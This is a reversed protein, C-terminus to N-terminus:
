NERTHSVALTRGVHPKKISFRIICKFCKLQLARTREKKRRNSPGISRRAQIYSILGLNPNTLGANLPTAGEAISLKLNAEGRANSYAAFRSLRGSVAFADFAM